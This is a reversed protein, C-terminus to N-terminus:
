GVACRMVTAQATMAGHLDFPANTTRSRRTKPPGTFDNMSGYRSRIAMTVARWLPCACFVGFCVRRM